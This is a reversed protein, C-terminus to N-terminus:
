NVGVKTSTPPARLAPSASSASLGRARLATSRTASRGRTAAHAAMEDEGHQHQGADGGGQQDHAVAVLVPLGEDLQVLQVLFAVFEVDLETAQLQLLGGPRLAVAHVLD